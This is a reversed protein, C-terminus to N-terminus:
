LLETSRVIGGRLPRLCTSRSVWWRSCGGAGDRELVLRVPKSRAPADTARRRESMKTMESKMLSGPQSRIMVCSVSRWSTTAM